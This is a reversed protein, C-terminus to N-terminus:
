LSCLFTEFASPIAAPDGGTDVVFAPASRVLSMLKPKLSDQMGPLQALTITVVAYFTEAPGARRFTVTEAGTRRPLLIAALHGGAIGNDTYRSGLRLEHRPDDNENSFAIRSQEIFATMGGIPGPRLRASAYIPAVRRDQPSSLVYDDGAYDWGAAACAVAATSKGSGGPGSLILTRGGLTVAAAHVPAWPGTTAHAHILQLVPRGRFAEYGQRKPLYSFGRRSKFDHVHLWESPRPQWLAWCHDEVFSYNERVGTPVLPALAEDPDCVVAVSFDPERSVDGPPFASLFEQAIGDDRFALEAM